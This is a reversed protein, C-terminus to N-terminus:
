VDAGFARAIEEPSMESVDVEGSERRTKERFFAFWRYYESIPM